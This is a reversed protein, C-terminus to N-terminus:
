FKDVIVMVKSYFAETEKYARSPINDLITSEYLAIKINAILTFVAQKAKNKRASPDPFPFNMLSVLQENYLNIAKEEATIKKM